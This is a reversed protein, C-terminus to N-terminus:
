DDTPLRGMLDAQSLRQQAEILDRAADVQGWTNWLLVGRVLGDELYYVVGEKGPVRWDEVVELRPDLLGVAEYGNDFLDSYFFPLHAYPGSSAAGGQTQGATSATGGASAAAAMYRGAAAGMGYANDEHEIRLRRGLAPWEFSAVDGAAFVNDLSGEGNAARLSADVLIGNDTRLGAEQALEQNPVAGVGVIVLDAAVEAGDDLELVVGSGDQRASQVTRGARVTVGRAAYDADVLTAISVPFRGGGISPEPFIMTVEAGNSRLAAAMESGIFGGGIVAVHAGERARERVHEYDEWTRYPVVGALGVLPPLTRARAGTALLLYDYPVVSDDDLRVSAGELGLSVARRGLILKAGTADTGLGVRDASEGKWLGKSLPPRKYPAQPEQSVLTVQGEPDARRIAKVAADGTMGGGVVLYRTSM